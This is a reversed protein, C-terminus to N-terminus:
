PTEVSAGTSQARLRVTFQTDGRPLPLLTFTTDYGAKSTVLDVSTRHLEGITYSGDATSIAFATGADVKAGEIPQGTQLNIVRGRLHAVHPAPTTPWDVVKEDLADNTPLCSTFGFFISSLLVTSRLLRSRLM